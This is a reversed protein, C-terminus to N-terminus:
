LSTIFSSSTFFTLMRLISFIILVNIWLKFTSAKALSVLAGSITILGFEHSPKMVGEKAGEVLVSVEILGFILVRVGDLGM